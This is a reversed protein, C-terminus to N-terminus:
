VQDPPPVPVVAAVAADLREKQAALIGTSNVVIQSLADLAADGAAGQNIEAVAADVSVVLDQVAQTNEAVAATLTDLSTAMHHLLQALQALTNLLVATERRRYRRHFCFHWNM